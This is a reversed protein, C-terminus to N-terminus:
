CYLGTAGQYGAQDGPFFEPDALGDGTFVIGFKDASYRPGYGGPGGYSSNTGDIQGGLDATAFGLNWRAGMIGWQEGGPYIRSGNEASLVSNCNHLSPHVAVGAPALVGRNGMAKFIADCGATSTSLSWAFLTGDSAICFSSGAGPVGWMNRVFITSDRGAHFVAGGPPASYVFQRGGGDIVFADPGAAGILPHQFYWSVHTFHGLGHCFIRRRALDIKEQAFAYVYAPDRFPADITGPNDNSGNASFWCHWDDTLLRRRSSGQVIDIVRGKEDVTVHADEYTGAKVYGAGLPGPM